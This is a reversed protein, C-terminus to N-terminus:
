LKKVYSDISKIVVVIAKPNYNRLKRAFPSVAGPLLVKRAKGKETGNRPLPNSLLDDM